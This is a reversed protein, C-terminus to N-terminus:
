GLRLTRFQWEPRRHAPLQPVTATAIQLANFGHSADAPFLVSRERQPRKGRNGNAVVMTLVQLRRAVISASCVQRESSAYAICM